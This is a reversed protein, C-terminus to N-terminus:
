GRRRIARSIRDVFRVALRKRYAAIDTQLENVVMGYETIKARLHVVDSRLDQNEGEFREIDAAARRSKDLRSAELRSEYEFLHSDFDMDAATLEIDPEPSALADAIRRDEILEGRQVAEDDTAPTPHRALFYPLLIGTKFRAYDKLGHHNPSPLLDPNNAYATGSIEVKNRYQQWSRSPFHLVEIAAAEEPAGDPELSVFHNGQSIEINPDGVHIANATPHPMLGKNQLEEASRHDRYVLRQLGTGSLAPPGVMNTVPVTFTRISNPTMRLADAVTLAPDAAIFFEDADANIVWDAGFQTYADRAMQTVVTYQQKKHVPDHRLEILGRAAFDQLIETTGDISGNDTVIITDIGQEIHHDLMAAIIDAEDRVMVTMAIKM